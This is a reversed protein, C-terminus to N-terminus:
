ADELAALVGDTFRSWNLEEEVRTRGANGLAAARSPYRLLSLIADAVDNPDTADVLLGTEGHRVAEPVGGSRGAVVPKGYAQAEAFVLGFGEVDEDGVQATPLAFVDCAAYLAVVDEEPLRGPLRVHERVGLRHAEQTTEYLCQGRGVLVLTADPYQELIRPLARVLTMQGKRPTFRGVGLIVPGGELIYRYNAAEVSEADPVTRIDAGPYVVRITSGDVGFAELKSRTFESIAVVTVANEYVKCLVTKVFPVKGFKLFEYAYAFTVYRAGRVVHALWAVTGGYAINMAFVVDARGTVRWSKMLFPLFRLWGLQYGGFRIVDVSENADFMEMDPFHPAVVTVDHGRAALERSLNLTVTSIGGEIPPYDVTLVLVNM